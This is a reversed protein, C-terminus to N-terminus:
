SACSLTLLLGFPMSGKEDYPYSQRLRSDHCFKRKMGSGTHMSQCLEEFDERRAAYAGRHDKHVICLPCAYHANCAQMGMVNHVFAQDGGVILHYVAFGSTGLKMTLLMVHSPDAATPHLGPFRSNASLRLDAKVRGANGDKHQEDLFKNIEEFVNEFCVKM